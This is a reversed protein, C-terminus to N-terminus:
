ISSGAVGVVGGFGHLAAVGTRVEQKQQYYDQKQTSKPTQRFRTRRLSTRRLGPGRLGDGGLDAIAESRRTPTTTSALM